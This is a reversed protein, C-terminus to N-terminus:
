AGFEGLNYRNLLQLHLYQVVPKSYHMLLAMLQSSHCFYIVGGVMDNTQIKNPISCLSGFYNPDIWVLAM